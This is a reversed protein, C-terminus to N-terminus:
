KGRYFGLNKVEDFISAKIVPQFRQKYFYEGKRLDVCKLLEPENFEEAFLAGTKAGSCFLAIAGWQDRILPNIQTAKQASYLCVHGWHRGKRALKAMHASFKGQDGSEDIGVLCSRSSYVVREFQEPSDTCFDANFDPDGLSDLVISKIGALRYRQIFCKLFLTKGSMTQGIVGIHM